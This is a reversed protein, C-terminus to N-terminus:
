KRLCRIFVDRLTPYSLSLFEIGLEDQNMELEHLLSEFKEKETSPLLYKFHKAVHQSCQVNKCIKKIIYDIKHSSCADDM